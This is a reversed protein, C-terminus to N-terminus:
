VNLSVYILMEQTYRFHHGSQLKSGGGGEGETGERGRATLQCKRGLKEEM